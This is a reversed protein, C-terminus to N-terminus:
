PLLVPRVSLGWCRIDGGTGCTILPQYDDTEWNPHYLIFVGYFDESDNGRYPTSYLGSKLELFGSIYTPGIESNDICMGAAPLFLENGNIKSVFKCGCLTELQEYTGEDPYIQDTNELLEEFQERRPLIWDGGWLVHAPDDEMELVLLGDTENYKSLNGQTGYKYTDWTYENEAKPSTEGWAFYDGYAEKLTGEYTTAGINYKAWM